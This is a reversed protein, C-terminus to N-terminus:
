GIIDVIKKDWKRLVKLHINEFTLCRPPRVTVEKKTITTPRTLM